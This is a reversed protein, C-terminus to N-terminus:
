RRIWKIAWTSSVYSGILRRGQWKSSIQGGSEDVNYLLGSRATLLLVASVNNDWSATVEEQWCLLPRARRLAQGTVGWYRGLEAGGEVAKGRQVAPAVRQGKAGENRTDKNQKQLKQGTHHEWLLCLSAGHPNLVCSKLNSEVPSVNNQWASPM